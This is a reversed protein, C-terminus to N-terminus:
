TRWGDRIAHRAHAVANRVARVRDAADPAPSGRRLQEELAALLDLARRTHVLARRRPGGDMALYAARMKAVRVPDMTEAAPPSPEQKKISEYSLDGTELDPEPGEEYYWGRDERGDHGSTNGPGDKPDSM